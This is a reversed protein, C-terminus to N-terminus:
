TSRGVLSCGWVWGRGCQPYADDRSRECVMVAIVRVVAGGADSGGGNSDELGDRNLINLVKIESGTLM